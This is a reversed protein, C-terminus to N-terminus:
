PDCSIKQRCLASRSKPKSAFGIKVKEYKPPDDWIGSAPKFAIQLRLDEPEVIMSQLTSPFFLDGPDSLNSGLDNQHYSIIKRVERRNIRHGMARAERSLTAWREYNSALGTHNDTNGLLVFSNVVALAHKVGWEIGPNLESDWSRLARHNNSAPDSVNNEVVRAVHPDALFVLHNFTYEKAPDTMADAVEDLTAGNELAQRLDLVYSRKNLSDYEAGTPSDLIGAYVHNDNIASIAGIFGVFGILCVSKEDQNITTVAHMRDLQKQSGEIWDLNRAAITSRSASLRGFVSFATCATGRAVDPFLNALYLENRSLSGDGLNDESGKFSASM